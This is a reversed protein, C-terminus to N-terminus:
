QCGPELSGDPFRMGDALAVPVVDDPAYQRNRDYPRLTTLIPTYIQLEFSFWRGLRVLNTGKRWAGSSDIAYAGPLTKHIAARAAHYLARTVDYDDVPKANPSPDAGWCHVTFMVNEAAITRMAGQVRREPTHVTASASAYEATGFKSGNPEFIIRPPASQEFEAATGIVIEGDALAPYGAADLKAVVDDSIAKVIQALPGSM